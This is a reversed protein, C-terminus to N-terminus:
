DELNKNRVRDLEEKLRERIARKTDVLDQPNRNPYLTAEKTVRSLEEKYQREIAKAAREQKYAAEPLNVQVFRLGVWNALTTLKSYEGGLPGRKDKILRDYNEGIKKIDLFPPAIQGELFIARKKFAEWTSDTKRNLPEGTFPDVGGVAGVLASVIPGNPTIATPWWKLGMFGNRADNQILDGLPIFAGFKFYVPKDATGLGPVQMYMNPGFGFLKENLYSPLKKRKREDEGGGGSMAILAADLVAMSGVLGALKWPKYIAVKLLAPVARYPWSIFPLVTQKLANVGRAHINYDLFETTATRGATLLEDQTLKSGKIRQATAAASMFSALRFVNDEASYAEQALKDAVNIGKGVKVAYGGLRSAKAKEYMAMVETLNWISSSKQLPIADLMAKSLLNKLEASSYDGILAGSRNFSEWIASEQPTLQEPNVKAKIYLSFSDKVTNVGIDHLYMWAVNSGANVIHTGPSWVTKYKKFYSIVTNFVPSDIIPQSYHIDELAGFVSGNVFKGAMSGWARSDAPVQIWQDPRRLQNQLLAPAARFESATYMKAGKYHPAIKDVADRTSVVLGAQEGFTVTAEAFRSSEVVRNLRDVTSQIATVRAETRAEKQVDSYSANRVMVINDKAKPDAGRIFWGASLDITENISPSYASVLSEHVYGSVLLQTVGNADLFREVVKYFRGDLDAGTILTKEISTPKSNLWADVPSTSMSTGGVSKDTFILLDSFKASKVRAELATRKADPINVRALYDAVLEYFSTRFMDALKQVRPALTLKPDDLYDLVKQQDGEPMNSMVSALDNAMNKPFHSQASVKSWADSLATPLAFTHDIYRALRAAGPFADNFAAVMKKVAVEGKGITKGYGLWDFGGKMFSETRAYKEDFEPIQAVSVFTGPASSYFKLGTTVSVDSESQAGGSQAEAREANAKAGQGAGRSRGKAGDTAGMGVGSEDSTLRVEEHGYGVLPIGSPRRRDAPIKQFANLLDNHKELLTELDATWTSLALPNARALSVYLQQLEPIFGETSHNRQTFHAAEHVMTSVMALAQDKVASGTPQMARYDIPNLFISKFPKYTHVGLLTGKASTNFMIGVPLKELGSYGPLKAIMDRMGQLFGSIDSTFENMETGYGLAEAYQVPTLWNDTSTKGLIKSVLSAPAEYESQELLYPANKDFKSQPIDFEDLVPPKYNQLEKLSMSPVTRGNITMVGNDVSIKADKPINLAANAQGEPIPQSLDMSPGFKGDKGAVQLVGYNAIRSLNEAHAYMAGVVGFVLQMDPASTPSFGQRNAAIPYLDSTAKVKPELNLFFDYPLSDGNLGPATLDADFQWVGHAMVHMNSGFSWNGLLDRGNSDVKPNIILRATGWPMEMTAIPAYDDKPFNSGIPMEKNRGPYGYTVKINEFLASRSVSSPPTYMSPFKVDVETGSSDAHKKPLTITITTGNPSDTAESVVSGKPFKKKEPDNENFSRNVEDGTLNVTIKTGDKVTVLNITDAVTLFQMKAIGFGGSPRKTTKVSGALTFFAKQVVDANMGVGNDEITISRKDEDLVLSISGQKIQGDELAGKVADAANQFMEKVAVNGSEEARGYLSNSVIGAIVSKNTEMGMELDKPAQSSFKTTKPMAFQQAGRAIIPAYEPAFREFGRVNPFEVLVKDDEIRLVTGVGSRTAVTDGARHFTPAAPLAVQPQAPKERKPITVVAEEEEATETAAAPAATTTTTAKAAAAPKAVKPKAVPAQEPMIEEFLKATDSMFQSMVSVNEKSWPKGTVIWSVANTFRSWVTLGSNSNPKTRDSPTKQKLDYLTDLKQKALFAPDVASLSLAKMYSQFDRDTQGYTIFESLAVLRDDATKAEAYRVATNDLAVQLRAKADNSMGKTYEDFKVYSGTAQGTYMKGLLTLTKGMYQAAPSNPKEVLYKVTAAHLLEHLLTRANQGGKYLTVTNTDLDYEGFIQNGRSDKGIENSVKVSPLYGQGTSNSFFDYLAKSLVKVDTSFGQFSAGSLFNLVGSKPGTWTSKEGKKVAPTQELKGSKSETDAVREELKSGTDVGFSQLERLYAEEAYNGRVQKDGGQSISAVDSLTGDKYMSWAAALRVHPQLEDKGIQERFSKLKGIVADVGKTGFEAEMAQFLPVVGDVDIGGVTAEQAAAFKEDQKVKSKAGVAATTSADWNSLAHYLRAYPGRPSDKTVKTQRLANAVFTTGAEDLPKRGAVKGKNALEPAAQRHMDTMAQDLATAVEVQAKDEAPVTSVDGVQIAAPNASRGTQPAQAGGSPANVDSVNQAQGDQNRGARVGQGDNGNVDGQTSIPPTGGLLAASAPPLPPVSSPTTAPTGGLLAATPQGASAPAAGLEAQIQDIKALRDAELSDPTNWATPTIGYKSRVGSTVDGKEVQQLFAVAQERDSYPANQDAAVTQAAKIDKAWDARSRNTRLNFAGGMLGGALTGEVVSRALGESLPRNNMLNVGITEIGSQPAEELVGEALAGGAVRGTFSLPRQAASKLLNVPAGGVMLTDIDTLGFRSALRGGGVGLAGGALGIGASILAAQRQDPLDPDYGALAGGAMISGEGIGASVAPSWSQGVVREVVGPVAARVPGVAAGAAEAAPTFAGAGRAAGLGSVVRGIGGGAVMSPVSEAVSLLTGRPNQLYAKVIGPVAAVGSVNPDQWAQNINARTQVSEPSLLAEQDDAWKGPQFGTAKGLYNAARTVPREGTLATIPMDILNAVAGPLSYLGRKAVTGIDETLTQNRQELGLELRAFENPIGNAKAYADALDFDSLDNLEPLASRLSKISPM